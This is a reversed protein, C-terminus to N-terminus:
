RANKVSIGPRPNRAAPGTASWARVNALSAGPSTSSALEDSSSRCFNKSSLPMLTCILPSLSLASDDSCSRRTL